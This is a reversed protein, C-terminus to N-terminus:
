QKRLILTVQMPDVMSVDYGLLDWGKGKFFDFGITSNGYTEGKPSNQPVYAFGTEDFTQELRPADTTGNTRDLYAWMERPWVTPMFLGGPNMADRVAALCPEASVPSLHTFVSFAYALDFRRGDTPLSDPIPDSLRFNGLVGDGALLDLASPLTDLGYINEPNTFYYLLRLMRGYGVGFDLITEGQLPKRAHRAYNSEMLRVFALTNRLLDM